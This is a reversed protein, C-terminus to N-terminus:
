EMETLERKKTANGGELKLGMTTQLYEMLDKKYKKDKIEAVAKNFEKM